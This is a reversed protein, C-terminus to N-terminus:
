DRAQAQDVGGVSRCGVSRCGGPEGRGHVQLSTFSARAARAAAADPYPLELSGEIHLHLEAKPLPQILDRLAGLDHFAPDLGSGALGARTSGQTPAASPYPVGAPTGAGATTTTTVTAAAAAANGTLHPMWPEAGSAAAAGAHAAVSLAPLLLLAGLPAAQSTRLM